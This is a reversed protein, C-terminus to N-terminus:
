NMNPRDDPNLFDIYIIRLSKYSVTELRLLLFVVDCLILIKLDLDWLMIAKFKMM